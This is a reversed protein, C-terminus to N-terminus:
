SLDSMAFPISDHSRKGVEPLTKARLACLLKGYRGQKDVECYRDM